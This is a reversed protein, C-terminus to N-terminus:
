RNRFRYNQLIFDLNDVLHAKPDNLRVALVTTPVRDIGMEEMEWKRLKGARWAPPYFRNNKILIDLWSRHHLHKTLVKIKLEEVRRCIFDPDKEGSLFGAYLELIEQLAQYLPGEVLPCELMTRVYHFFAPNFDPSDSGTLNKWQRLLIERTPEKHHFVGSQLVGILKGKKLIPVYLTSIEGCASCFSKKEKEMRQIQQRSYEAREEVKGYFYDLFMPWSDRQHRHIEFWRDKDELSIIWFELDLYFNLVRFLQYFPFVKNVWSAKELPM